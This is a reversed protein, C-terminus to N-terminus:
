PAGLVALAPQCAAMKHRSVFERRTCWGIPNVALLGLQAACLRLADRGADPDGPRGTPALAPIRAGPEDLRAISAM